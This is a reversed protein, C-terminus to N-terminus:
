WGLTGPSGKFPGEIEETIWGGYFDGDQARVRENGLYAAVRGPYFCVHRRLQEYAAAPEPYHWGAAHVREEGVVVDLYTASGKWECLTGRSESEKVCGREIDELPVYVTPPSATELVRLARSTRAIIAGAFEIRVPRESPVLAPPRPYDWVSEVGTLTPRTLM